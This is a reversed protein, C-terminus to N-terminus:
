VIAVMVAGFEQQPALGSRFGSRLGIRRRRVSSLVTRGFQVLHAREFGAALSAISNRGMAKLVRQAPMAPSIAHGNRSIGMAVRVLLQSVSM